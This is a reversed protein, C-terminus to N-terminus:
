GNFGCLLLKNVLTHTFCSMYDWVADLIISKWLGLNWLLIIIEILIKKEKLQAGWERM